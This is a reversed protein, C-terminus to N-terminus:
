SVVSSGSANGFVLELAKERILECRKRCFADFNSLPWLDTDLPILQRELQIRGHDTQILESLYDSPFHGGIHVNTEPTLFALNGLSNLRGNLSNIEDRISNSDEEDAEELRRELAEFKTAFTAKPFIHHYEWVGSPIPDGVRYSSLWDQAHTNRCILYLLSTYASRFDATLLGELSLYESGASEPDLADPGRFLEAIPVGAVTAKIDARLRSKARTHYRGAVLCLLIWSKLKDLADAGHERPDHAGLFHAAVVFPYEARIFRFNSIGIEKMLSILAIIGREVKEWSKAYDEATYRSAESYLRNILPQRTHLATWIQFM